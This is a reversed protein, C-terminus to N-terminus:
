TKKRKVAYFGLAAFCGASLLIPAAEPLVFGPITNPVKMDFLTNDSCQGFCSTEFCGTGFCSDGICSNDHCIKDPASKGLAYVLMKPSASSFTITFSQPDKTLPGSLFAKFAWYVANAVNLHSKLSGVTYAAGDTTGPPIKDGNKNDPAFDSKLFTVSGGKWTVVVNGVLGNYCATTIVLFLHPSYSEGSTVSVTFTAPSKLAIPLAPNIRIQGTGGTALAPTAFSLILLIIPILIVKKM